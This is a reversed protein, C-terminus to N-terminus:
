FTGWLTDRKRKSELDPVVGEIILKTHGRFLVGGQQCLGRQVGLGVPLFHGLYVNAGPHLVTPNPTLSVLTLSCSPLCFARVPLEGVSQGGPVGCIM